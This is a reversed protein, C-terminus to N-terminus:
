GGAEDIKGMLRDAFVALTERRHDLRCREGRVVAVLSGLAEEFEDNVIVYDYEAYHSIEAEADRMRREIVEPDDQGRGELRERLAERSPPLVFVSVADAVRERIQRAGQWDIELVVDRGAAREAEVAARSTGYYRDFVRAHELFAGEAVQREFEAEDVFHYDVGDREGPRPARTTHSVSAVVGDVRELLARYLSTKGAGSPASLIILLGPQHPLDAPGEPM